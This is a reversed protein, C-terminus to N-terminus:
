HMPALKITIEPIDKLSALWDLFKLILNKFRKIIKTKIQESIVEIVNIRSLFLKMKKPISCKKAVHERIPKSKRLIFFLLRINIRKTQEKSTLTLLIENSKGLWKEQSPKFLSTGIVM